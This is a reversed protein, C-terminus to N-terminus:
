GWLIYIGDDHDSCTVMYVNFISENRNRYLILSHNNKIESARIYLDM